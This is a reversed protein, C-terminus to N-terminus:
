ARSRSLEGGRHCMASIRSVQYLRSDAYRAPLHYGIFTTDM